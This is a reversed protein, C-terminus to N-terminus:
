CLKYKMLVMVRWNIIEYHISSIYHTPGSILIDCTITANLTVRILAM